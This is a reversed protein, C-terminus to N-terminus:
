ISVQNYVYYQALFQQGEAADISSANLKIRNEYAQKSHMLESIDEGLEYM